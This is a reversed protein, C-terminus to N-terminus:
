KQMYTVLGSLSLDVPIYLLYRSLLFECNGFFSNLDLDRSSQVLLYLQFITQSALTLSTLTLCAALFRGTHGACLM